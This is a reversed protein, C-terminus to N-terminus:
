GNSTVKQYYVCRDNHFYLISDPVTDGGEAYLELVDVKERNGIKVM